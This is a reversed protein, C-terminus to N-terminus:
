VCVNRNLQLAKANLLFSKVEKQDIWRSFLSHDTAMLLGKWPVFVASHVVRYIVEM